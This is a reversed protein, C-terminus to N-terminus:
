IHIDPYEVPEDKWNRYRIIPRGNADEEWSPLHEMTAAIPVTYKGTCHPLVFEPVAMNSMHRKMKSLIEIGNKVSTRFYATGPSYPMFHYLYHPIVGISYLSWCLERMTDLDDNVNGLLPINAFLVPVVRQLKKVAEKFEPTIENAHAIHIGFAALNHREFISVLDDTIRQPNFTLTRSHLRVVLPRGIEEIDSFFHSLQADDILLPEGGSLIVEDIEPHEKVYNITDQWHKSKFSLKSSNKDLTRLAEYCYQCYSQCVNTMRVIVRNDYKHQCIPTVMEGDLEWNDTEGDYEIETADKPDFFPVLQKWIPDDTKPAGSETTEILALVHPTISFRREALNNTLVSLDEQNLGPFAHILGEVDRIANKQQWRWDMKEDKTSEAALNDKYM